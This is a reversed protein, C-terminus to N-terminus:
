AEALCDGEDLGSIAQHAETCTNVNEPVPMHYERGTSGDSGVLWKNGLDDQILGRMASGDLGLGPDTDLIKAGTEMLYKAVGYRQIMIRRVESNLESRIQDHALTEPSMVIQETVVHNEIMWCKWGDAYEIAPGSENHCIEGDVVIKTPRDCVIACGDFVYHWGSSLALRRLIELGSKISSDIKAEMHEILFDTQYIWYSELNGYSYSHSTIFYGDGDYMRIFHRVIEDNTKGSDVLPKLHIEDDINNKHIANILRQAEDPSRVFLVIKPQPKNCFSYLDRMAKEAVVRDSPGTTLTIKRSEEQYQEFVKQQEETLM